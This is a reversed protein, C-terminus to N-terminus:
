YTNEDMAQFAARVEELRDLHRGIIADYDLDGTEIRHNEDSWAEIEELHVHSLEWAEESWRRSEEWYVLAVNFLSEARELSELNQRRWPANYFYATDKNYKSAWRLHLEVLKLNVHMMFLRRYRRWETEDEIEALANLPNAFDADLAMQLWRVNEAIRQPYQYFHVHYLRYLQEKYILRYAPTSDVFVLALVLVLPFLRKM